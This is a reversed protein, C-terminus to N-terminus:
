RWIAVHQLIQSIGDAITPDGGVALCEVSPNGLKLCSSGRRQERFTPCYGTPGAPELVSSQEVNQVLDALGAGQELREM